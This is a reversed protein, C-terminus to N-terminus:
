FTLDLLTRGNPEALYDRLTEVTLPLTPLKQERKKQVLYTMAEAEDFEEELCLTVASYTLLGQQTADMQALTDALFHQVLYFCSQAIVWGPDEGFPWPSSEGWAKAPPLIMFHSNTATPVLVPQLLPYVVTPVIVMDPLGNGCLKQLYAPLKSNQFIGVLDDYATQWPESETQLFQGLNTKQYFDALTGVWAGDALTAPLAEQPAFDPWTCRLAATFYDSLPIDDALGQNLLTVATHEATSEVYYATHKSHPHVAHPTQQQELEPWNSAALVATVLRARDDLSITIKFM